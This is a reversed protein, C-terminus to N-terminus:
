CDISVLEGSSLSIVVGKAQSRGNFVESLLNKPVVCTDLGLEKRVRVNLNVIDESMGSAVYKITGKEIEGKISEISEFVEAVELRHGEDVVLLVQCNM